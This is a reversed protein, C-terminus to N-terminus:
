SLAEVPTASGIRKGLSARVHEAGAEGCLANIMVGIGTSM